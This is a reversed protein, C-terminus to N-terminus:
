IEKFVWTNKFERIERLGDGLKEAWAKTQTTYMKIM